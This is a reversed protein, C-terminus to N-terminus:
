WTFYILIIQWHCSFQIISISWLMRSGDYRKNWITVIISINYYAVLYMMVSTGSLNKCSFLLTLVKLYMHVWNLHMDVICNCTLIYSTCQQDNTHCKTIIQWHNMLLSPTSFIFYAYFCYVLSLAFLVRSKYFTFLIKRLKFVKLHFFCPSLSIM